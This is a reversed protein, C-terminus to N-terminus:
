DGTIYTLKGLHEPKIPESGLVEDVEARVKAYANPNNLLHSVTFSLLGSTTEHGAILFTVLNAAITEDSLGLGTVPDKATLM